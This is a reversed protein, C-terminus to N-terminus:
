EKYDEIWVRKCKLCGKFVIGDHHGGKNTKNEWYTDETDPFFSIIRGDHKCFINRLIRRIKRILKIM